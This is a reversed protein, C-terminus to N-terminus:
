RSFLEAGASGLIMLHRGSPSFGCRLREPMLRKLSLLHSRDLGSQQSGRTRPTRMIVESRPWWPYAVELEWGEGTGHIGDGGYIGFVAVSEGTQPIRFSLGPRSLADYTGIVDRDRILREGATNTVSYGDHSAVLVHEDATWGGAIV